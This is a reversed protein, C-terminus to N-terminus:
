DYKGTQLFDTTSMVSLEQKDESFQMKKALEKKNVVYTGAMLDHLGQKHKTFAAIIYGIYFLLYSLVKGWYRGSAQDFGIPNFHVDVVVIKFLMKGPTAQFKSREFFGYYFWPLIFCCIIWAIMIFAQLSSLEDTPSLEYNFGM